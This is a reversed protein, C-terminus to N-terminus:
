QRDNFIKVFAGPKKGATTRKCGPIQLLCFLRYGDIDDVRYNPM